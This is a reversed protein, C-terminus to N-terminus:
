DVKLLPHCEWEVIDEEHEEYTVAEVHKKGIVKRECVEQRSFKFNLSILGITKKLTFLFDEYLKKVDGLDRAIEVAKARGGSPYVSFNAGPCPLDPHRDYFSALLRLSHAYEKNTM